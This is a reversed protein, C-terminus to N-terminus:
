NRSHHFPVQIQTSLHCFFCMHTISCRVLHCTPLLTALVLCSPPQTCCALKTVTPLLPPPSVRCVSSLSLRIFEGISKFYLGLYHPLSPLRNVLRSTFSVDQPRPPSHPESSGHERIVSPQAYRTLCVTPLPSPIKSIPLTISKLEGAM